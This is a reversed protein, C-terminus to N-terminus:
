TQRMRCHSNLAMQRGGGGPKLAFACLRLSAFVCPFFTERAPRSRDSNQSGSPDPKMRKAGERRQTKANIEDGGASYIRSWPTGRGRLSFSSSWGGGIGSRASSPFRKTRTEVFIGRRRRQFDDHNEGTPSERRIKMELRAHRSEASLRVWGKERLWATDATWRRWTEVCLRLPAFVCPFFTERAPRRRNSKQSGSLDPKMRKAGERRQTKANINTEKSFLYPELTDATRVVGGINSRVSSSFRKTRIEVYKDRRRRQFDDRSGGFKVGAWGGTSLYRKLKEKLTERGRHSKVQFGVIALKHAHANLADMQMQALFRKKEPPLKGPCFLGADGFQNFSKEQASAIM